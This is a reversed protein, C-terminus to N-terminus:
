RTILIRADVAQVGRGQEYVVLPNIEVDTIHRCREILDGLKIITEVVGDIDKRKEGRVGLLLPYSRIQKIMSRVEHRTLPLARFSVDKMVEVYIGGLGFMVIPGFSPDRRAGIITELGPEVQKTVEVGEIVADPRRSRCNHMVAGYADSVEERDLLDLAVGGVDSKHLIDKSVVKMVVPYGINEARAIAEDLNRALGSAPMQIGAAEMVGRAEYAVLGQRRGAQAGRVIKEVATVDIDTSAAREPAGRRATRHNVYLAGLCSVAEYVDSFISIGEGRLQDIVEEIHPGGVFSLVVPKNSREQSFIGQATAALEEGSFVATECGLCIVAHIDDRGLAAQLAREYESATAGGTIDVPNKVSGFSPVADSFIEKMTEIDDYLNVGYKECADAAM